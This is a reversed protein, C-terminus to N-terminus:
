KLENLILYKSKKALTNMFVCEVAAAPVSSVKGVQGM